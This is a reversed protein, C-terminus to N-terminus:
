QRTMNPKKMNEQLLIIWNKFTGGALFQQDFRTMGRKKFYSM